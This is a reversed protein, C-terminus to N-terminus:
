RGARLRPETLTGFLTLQNNGARMKIEASFSGSLQNNQSVDFSGGASLVSSVIKVQRFHTAHNDFQVLGTMDDFHTRGGVLHERSLLRATEVMDVNFTGRKVSFSADLHPADGLQSLKAGSMTLTGEGNMEGDVSYKPFMKDLEFSKAELTGQLQWGKRWNLKARGRLLGNYMHADVESFSAEGDTLEGEASLDSFAIDPLFPLTIGKLEVDLKWRGQDSEIDVGVKDDPSHVSVRNLAGQADFDAVGSLVPLTIEDTVIKARQLTLHRVPYLPEGGARKLGAVQRDLARGDVSVDRLEANSIVKVPSFLSLPDFKLVISGIKTEQNSGVTVNQLQLTPPLSAASLAGIHVPQKLQASLRQEMPAIYDKLPYVYPLILVVAVSAAILGSVIKLWPLPKRRARSVPKMAKAQALAAQQAAQEAEIKAQIKARQEAEAWAKAQEEALAQEEARKRAEEEAKLRAAEAKAEAEAKLRAMETAADLKPEKEPTASRKEEQPAPAEAEAPAAAPSTPQEVGAMFGSLNIEFSPAEEVEEPQEATRSQAEAAVRVEAEARARAAAAREAERRATEQEARSRAAAEAEALAKARAAAEQEARLRAAEAEQRAREEAAQRARAEALARAEAEARAKAAELEARMRAAEEEAKRRAAEAEAKAKAAAELEARIRAAEQEAKLRAAEAEQKAKAEAEAKARAAAELEARIRAAEQEAKLRAAEAEQKARAEAERQALAAAEIQARVRAEAEAKARAVEEQAARARAAEQEIAAQAAARTAAEQRTKAEAQERIMAEQKAKLEAEARARVATEAEQRAKAEAKARAEADAKVKAAAVAAELEARARAAEEAKQKAALEAANPAPATYTSHFDLDELPQPAVVKSPKAPEHKPSFIKLPNFKPTAIKPEVAQKDRDVIYGGAVLENILEAWSERLSPPARKSLEESKSKNDILSLVRRLDSSLDAGEREGKATKVFITKRDM